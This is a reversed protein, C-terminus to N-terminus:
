SPNTTKYLQVVKYLLRTKEKKKGQKYSKSVRHSTVGLKIFNQAIPNLGV